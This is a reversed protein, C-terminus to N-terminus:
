YVYEYNKRSLFDWVQSKSSWYFFVRCLGDYSVKWPNNRFVEMQQEEDMETLLFFLVDGHRVDKATRVLSEARDWPTLKRLFYETGVKNGWNSNKAFVIKTLSMHM